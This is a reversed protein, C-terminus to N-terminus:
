NSNITGSVDKYTRENTKTNLIFNDFTVKKGIMIYNAYKPKELWEEGFRFQEISGKEFSIQNKQLDHYASKAKLLEYGIIDKLILIPELLEFSQIKGENRKTFISDNKGACFVSIKSSDRNRMSFTIQSPFENLDINRLKAISIWWPSSSNEKNQEVKEIARKKTKIEIVGNKGKEGYKKTATVGSITNLSEIDDAKIDNLAKTYVEGDVVVLPKEISRFQSFSPKAPMKIVSDSSNGKTVIEIVGEKGRVVNQVLITGQGSQYGKVPQIDTEKLGLLLFLLVGSCLTLAIKTGYSFSGSKSRMMMILRMRTFSSNSNSTLSISSRWTIFSVLKDAYSRIDPVDKIVANDALYEHNIRIARDYLIYVPNFWYFIRVIEIIIIDITHSQKAHEMEHDLLVRDIRGNLYDERYLFITNFFCCPDTRDNTLVIQYGKQFTKESWRTRHILIYINRLFRVLLLLVGSVYLTLLMASFSIVSPQLESNQKNEGVPNPVINDAIVIETPSNNSAPILNGLNPMTRFNVPISILPVLLSFVVSLILFFRNFEFLKEKRLLCWYLGFLIILCLSSKLIYATM